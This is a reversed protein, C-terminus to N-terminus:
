VDAEPLPHLDPDVYQARAEESFLRDRSYFRLL